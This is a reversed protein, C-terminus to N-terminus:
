VLLANGHVDCSGEVAEKLKYASGGPWPRNLLNMVPHDRVRERNGDDDVAYGKLPLRAVGTALKNVCVFVWPQRRYIVEYTLSIFDRGLIPVSGPTPGISMSTGASALPYSKLAAKAGDPAIVTTM